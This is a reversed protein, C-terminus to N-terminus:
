NAKGTSSLLFILQPPHSIPPSSFCKVKDLIRTCHRILLGYPYHIIVLNQSGVMAALNFDISCKLNISKIESKLAIKLLICQFQASFIHLWLCDLSKQLSASKFFVKPFPFIVSNLMEVPEWTLYKSHLNYSCHLYCREKGLELSSCWLLLRELKM